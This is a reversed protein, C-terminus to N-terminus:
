VDYRYPTLAALVQGRSNVAVGYTGIETWTPTIRGNFNIADTLDFGDGVVYGTAGDLELLEAKTPSATGDAQEWGDARKMGVILNGTTPDVALDNQKVAGAVDAEWLLDGNDADFCFVNSGAASGTRRGGVFVRRNAQDLVVAFLTPENDVTDPFRGGGSIAPIDNRFTEAGWTFARRISIGSDREWGGADDAPGYRVPADPDVFNPMSSEFARTLNVRRVNIYPAQGDPLQEDDSSDYGFGQNTSAVYAYVHGASTVEVDFSFPLCGRPRQISYESFRFYRHDEYGDDGSELGMPMRRRTLVTGGVAVPEDTTGALYSIDFLQIGSRYFEGLKESNADALVPGSVTGSGTMLVLLYDVGARTIPAVAQVEECWDIAHRKIYTLDDADFVYVYRYVAVFLYPGLQAVHNVFLPAQSVPLSGGPDKDLAYAQHTVADTATSIRNVGVIVVNDTTQATDRAITVFYGIDPDTSHWCTKDAAHGGASAPPTTFGTGRSDNFLTRVGRDTDLVLAQGRFTGSVRSRGTTGRAIDLTSTGSVDQARPIEGIAQVEGENLALATEVALKDRTALRKRGTPSDSPVVNLLGRPDTIDGPQKIYPTADGVGLYPAPIETRPM